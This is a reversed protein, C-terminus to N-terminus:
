RPHPRPFPLGASQRDRRSALHLAAHRLAAVYRAVDASSEGNLLGIVPKGTQQAPGPIPWTAAAGILTIFERRKVAFHRWHKHDAPYCVTSHQV